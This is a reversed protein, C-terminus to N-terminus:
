KAYYERAGDVDNCLALNWEKKHSILIGHHTHIEKIWEDTLPCQPEKWLKARTSLAAIFM